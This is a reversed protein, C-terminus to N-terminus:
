YVKTVIDQNQEKSLAFVQVKFFHIM